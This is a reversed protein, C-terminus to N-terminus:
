CIVWLCSSMLLLGGCQPSPLLRNRVLFPLGSPRPVDIAQSGPQASSNRWRGQATKTSACAKKRKHPTASRRRTSSSNTKPKRNHSKSTQTTPERGNSSSNTTHVRGAKCLVSPASPIHKARLHARALSARTTSLAANAITTSLTTSKTDALDWLMSERRARRREAARLKEEEKAARKKLREREKLLKKIESKKMGKYASLDLEEDSGLEPLTIKARKKSPSAEPSEDSTLSVKFGSCVRM